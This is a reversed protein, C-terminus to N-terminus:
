VTFITYVSGKQGKSICPYQHKRTVTTSAVGQFGSSLDQFGSSLNQEFKTPTNTVLQLQDYQAAMKIQCIKSSNHSNKVEVVQAAPYM